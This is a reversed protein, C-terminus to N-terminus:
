FAYGLSIGFAFGGIQTPGNSYVNEMRPCITKKEYSYEGFIGLLFCDNLAVNFGTNFFLGVNGSKISCDVYPSYNHQHFYFFRPGIAFFYYYHDCFNFVPKIGIDFPVVTLSTKECLGLSHGWVKRYGVSGYLDLCSYVPGSGSAQIEFGGKDYINKMPSNSFFFYSPKIEFWRIPWRMHDSAHQTGTGVLASFLAIKKYM